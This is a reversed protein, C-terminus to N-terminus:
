LCFIYKCNEPLTLYLQYIFYGPAVIMVLAQLLYLLILNFSNRKSFDNMKKTLFYGAYCFTFLICIFFVLNNM